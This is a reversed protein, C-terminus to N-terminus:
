HTDLWKSPAQLFEQITLIKVSPYWLSQNNIQHDWYWHRGGGEPCIVISAVGLGGALHATSSSVTVVLDCSLLLQSLEWLDNTIDFNPVQLAPSEFTENFADIEKSVEGYQLSFVESKPYLFLARFDPLDVSKLKSYAAGISRWSIGFRKTQPLRPFSNSRTAKITKRPQSQFSELDRRFIGGLHSLRTFFTFDSRNLVLNRDVFRVEPHTERLLPLLRPDSQVTLNKARNKAELLLTTFLIQDGLGQEALILVPEATSQGTWPPLAADTLWPKRLSHAKELFAWGSSFNFSSLELFALSTLAEVNTSDRKLAGWYAERAEARRGLDKLSTGKAVWLSPDESQRLMEDSVLQHAKDPQGLKRLTESLMPLWRQDKSNSGRLVELQELAGRYDGTKIQSQAMVLRALHYDSKLAIARSLADVAECHADLESLAKGLNFWAQPADPLVIVARESTHKAQTPENLGLQCSSKGVLMPGDHPLISLGCNFCSLAEEFLGGELLLNGKIRIFDPNGAETELASTVLLLAKERQGMQAMLGAFWGKAFADNPHTNLHREYAIKADDLQGSSHLSFASRLHSNPPM